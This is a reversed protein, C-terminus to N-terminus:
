EWGLTTPLEPPSFSVLVKDIRNGDMDLVEFRFRKWHFHDGAVPVAGIENLVFGALTQFGIHEEEPLEDIEFLDKFEDVPLAGDLLYSGDERVVIQPEEQNDRSPIEGVIASLVDFLTVMGLLGGYEDIVLAEHVGSSKVMELAKIAPMGEPVFLPPQLLEQIYGSEQRLNEDLLNKVQLIGIVNDLSGQAVPLRSHNSKRVEQLIKEFPDDIDIWEIETRPTMLADISRDTLRFVGEVMDQEAEEFVGVRAGEQMLGKIEEETIPPEKSPKAGLIRLGLDTSAGLFSVLPSSIRAMFHMIGSVALAIREPNNLAIRKPILEGIVLSLYTTVIVVLTLAVAQSYPVLWSIDKFVVVLREALTAGGLAGTLVGVLTIGIQVTSLLRNVPHRLSLAWRAAKEGKEARQQLRVKRASVLAIESMSFFGNLFILLLILTIELFPTTM